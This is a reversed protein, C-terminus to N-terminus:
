LGFEEEKDASGGFATRFAKGQAKITKDPGTLKLYYVKGPAGGESGGVVLIAALMRYGPTPKTKRLFPPGDPKNYTGSVDALVYENDGAKGKVATAKRGESAFQGIWRKVNDTVNGGGGPFSFIALEGKDSDGEAPPIEITALRMNSTSPIEKWAEPVQLVLDGYKAQKTKVEAEKAADDALSFPSASLAFAVTLVVAKM